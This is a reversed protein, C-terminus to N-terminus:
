FATSLILNMLTKGANQATTADNSGGADYSTGSMMSYAIAVKVNQRLKYRAGIVIANDTENSGALKVGTKAFSMGAQLNLVHPIVGVDALIGMHSKTETGGNYANTKSATSAPATGYSAYIGLPMGAVEGQAQADIITAENVNADITAQQTTAIVVPAQVKGLSAADIGKLGNGTYYQVGFGTEFGAITPTYAARVYTAGLETATVKSNTTAFGQAWPTLTVHFDESVVGLTVGSATTNTGFYSGTFTQQNEIPRGNATSGTAFLDFGYQPGLGNVTFPVVLTHMAGVETSFVLKTGALGAAGSGIAIETLSGIGESVRGGAFLSFEDPFDIRGFGSNQTKTGAVDTGSRKQIRHQLYVAMNLEAPISLGHEGEIKGQSGMMTYGAAKFSKGFASLIPYSNFHCADCAMGTQRAFAPVASAEPAFAVAALVSALTLAVKKM